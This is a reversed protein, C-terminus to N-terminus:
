TKKKLNSKYSAVNKVHDFQSFGGISFVVSIVTLFKILKKM